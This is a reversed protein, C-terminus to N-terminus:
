HKFRVFRSATVVNKGIRRPNTAEARDIERMAADLANAVKQLEPVSKMDDHIYALTERATALDIQPPWQNTRPIRFM